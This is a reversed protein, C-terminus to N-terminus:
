SVRIEQHDRQSPLTILKCDCLQCIKQIKGAGGRWFTWLCLFFRFLLIRFIELNGLGLNQLFHQDLMAFRINLQM